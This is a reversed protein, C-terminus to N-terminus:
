VEPKPAFELVLKAAKFADMTEGAHSLVTLTGPGLTVVEAAPLGAGDRFAEQLRNWGRWMRGGSYTDMLEARKARGKCIADILDRAQKDAASMLALRVTGRRRELARGTLLERLLKRWDDIEEGVQQWRAGAQWAENYERESEAEVRAFEDAARAADTESDYIESFDFRAGCTGEESAEYGAVYRPKRGKAALRFVVGRLTGSQCEETFWGKHSTRGSALFNDCFGVRRLGNEPNEIWREGKDNAAGYQIARITRYRLVGRAMNSRALALADKASQHSLEYDRDFQRQWKYADILAQNIM